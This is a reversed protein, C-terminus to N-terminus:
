LIVSETLLYEPLALSSIVLETVLELLIEVSGKTLFYSIAM